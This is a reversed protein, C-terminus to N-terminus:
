WQTTNSPKVLVHEGKRASVFFTLASEPTNQPPPSQLVFDSTLQPIYAQDLIRNKISRTHLSSARCTRAPPSSHSTATCFSLFVGDHLWGLFVVGDILCPTTVTPMRLAPLLGTSIFGSPLRSPPEPQWHWHLNLQHPIGYRESVNPGTTSCLCLLGTLASSKIVLM